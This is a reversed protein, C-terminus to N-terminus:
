RSAIARPLPGSWRGLHQDPFFLVKERQNFSWQLVKGANSSTCVIGGHEGCFAKLDAASNIYTDPTVAEDPDLM